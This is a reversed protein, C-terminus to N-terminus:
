EDGVKILAAKFEVAARILEDAERLWDGAAVDGATIGGRCAAASIPAIVDSMEKTLSCIHEVWTKDEPRGDPPPLVTCGAASALARTVHPWGPQGVTIAELAMVVDAPMFAAAVNVNGYTSLVQQGVRCFGAAAEGGGVAQVLGRAAVKMAQLPPPLVASM